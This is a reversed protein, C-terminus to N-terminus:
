RRQFEPSMLLLALGQQRSDAADIAEITAASAADGLIAEALVAADLTPAARQALLEAVDLRNTMADAALWTAQDDKFGEPSPPDWPVQGLARLWNGAAALDIEVDLARISAWVFEQPSRLKVPPGDAGDLHLLARAVAKLDGGTDSFTAAITEVDAPSPEDALFHRVLKTAIHRATALHAALDDLVAEAQAIDPQGYRRGMVTQAGPEHVGPRFMFAGATENREFGGISWGTLARALATLDAQDYGGDVGVTHLELLERAHNENLGRGTRLGVDSRPGFSSVNDLYVLMAPHKTAAGLMDRFSGLVHPRIAEREFSGVLAREQAGAGAEVAFHNTWFWVLREAFGIEAEKARAVRATLEQRYFRQEARIPPPLSPPNAPRGAAGAASRAMAEARLEALADASSTFEPGELLAVDPRDLEAEVAGIADERFANPQGPKTGLGFRNLVISAGNRAM